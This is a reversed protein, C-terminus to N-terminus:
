VKPSTPVKATTGRRRLAGAGAMGVLGLALLGMTAPEPTNTVDVVMDNYDCAEDGAGPAGVNHYCDTNNPDYNQLDEMTIRTTYDNINTFQFKIVQTPDVPIQTGDSFWYLDTQLVYLGFLYTGAGPNVTNTAGPVDPPAVFVYSGVLNYTLDFLGFSHTFGASRSIYTFALDGNTTITGDPQVNWPSASAVAPVGAALGAAFLLNRFKM